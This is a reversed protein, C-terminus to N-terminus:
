LLAPADCSASETMHLECLLGEDHGLRCWADDTLLYTLQDLMAPTHGTM